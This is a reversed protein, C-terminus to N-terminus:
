TSVALAGSVLSLSKVHRSPGMDLWSKCQGYVNSKWEKHGELIWERLAPEWRDLPLYQHFSGSVRMILKMPLSLMTNWQMTNGAM